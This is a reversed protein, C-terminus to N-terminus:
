TTIRAFLQKEPNSKNGAKKAAPYNAKVMGDKKYRYCDKTAHLTYVAALIACNQAQIM